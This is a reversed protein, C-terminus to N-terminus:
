RYSRLRKTKKRGGKKPVSGFTDIQTLTKNWEAEEKTFAILPYWGKERRKQNVSFICRLHDRMENRDHEMQRLRDREVLPATSPFSNLVQIEAPTEKPVSPFNYTPQNKNNSMYLM